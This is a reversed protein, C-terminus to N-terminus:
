NTLSHDLYAKAEEPTSFYDSERSYPLPYGDEPTMGMDPDNYGHGIYYGAASQMVQLPSIRM